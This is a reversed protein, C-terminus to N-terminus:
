QVIPLRRIRVTSDGIVVVSGAGLEDALPPLSALLLEALEASRRNAVRRVLVVSPSEAQTAALLTGFDTDASILIREDGRAQELVSPDDASALGLDRVHVADWSAALLLKGVVPSLNNDLLVRM